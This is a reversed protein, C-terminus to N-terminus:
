GVKFFGDEFFAYCTANEPISWTDLGTFLSFAPLIIQKETVVYCPCRLYKKTPLQVRVGPHLHGSITWKDALERTYQHTFCIPGMNWISYVAHLGIASLKKDIFRDHNGKILIFATEPFQLTLSAFLEVEKNAGAHVLDGTIVVQKAAYHTILKALREIDREAVQKPLAIGHKRFHAAKGLHLDSLILTDEEPWYIIRQNTLILNEGSFILDQEVINM